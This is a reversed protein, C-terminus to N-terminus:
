QFQAFLELDVGRPITHIKSPDARYSTELAECEASNTAIICDFARVLRRETEIRERIRESSDVAQKFCGLSCLTLVWPLRHDPDLHMLYVGSLWYCSLVLSYRELTLEPPHKRTLAEIEPLEIDYDYDIDNLRSIRHVIFGETVRGVRASGQNRLTLLDISWGLGVLNKGLELVYKSQGGGHLTGFSLLPDANLSIILLEM